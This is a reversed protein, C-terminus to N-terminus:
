MIKNQSRKYTEMNEHKWATIVIPLKILTMNKIPYIFINWSEVKGILLNKKWKIFRTKCCLHTKKTLKKEFIKLINQWQQMNPLNQDIEGKKTNNYDSVSNENKLFHIKIM